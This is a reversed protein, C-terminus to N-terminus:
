AKIEDGLKEMEKKSSTEILLRRDRIQRLSNIGVKIDTPIV